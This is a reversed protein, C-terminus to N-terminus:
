ASEAQGCYRALIPPLGTFVDVKTLYEAAHLEDARQEDAHYSSLTVLPIPALKPDALQRRRFEWGDMVPMSLDLLIVDPAPNSRLYDLAPQGGDVATATYGLHEILDTLADQLIAENEVILVNCGSM